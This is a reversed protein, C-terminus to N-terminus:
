REARAATLRVGRSDGVFTLENRLLRAVELESDKGFGLDSPAIRVGRCRQNIAAIAM